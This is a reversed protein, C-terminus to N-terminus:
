IQGSKKQALLKIAWGPGLEPHVPSAWWTPGIKGGRGGMDEQKWAFVEVNERLFRILGDKIDEALKSGIYTLHDPQDGLQVLDLEESPTPRTDLKDRM